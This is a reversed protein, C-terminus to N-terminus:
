APGGFIDAIERVALHGPPHDVLSVGNREGSREQCSIENRRLASPSVCPAQGRASTLLSSELARSSHCPRSPFNRARRLKPRFCLRMEREPPRGFPSRAEFLKLRAWKLRRDVEESQGELVGELDNRADAGPLGDIQRV